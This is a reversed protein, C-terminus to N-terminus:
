LRHQRLLPSIERARMREILSKDEPVFASIKRIELSDKCTDYGGVHASGSDARTIGLLIKLTTTKGVGNSGLLGTISGEPLSWSM